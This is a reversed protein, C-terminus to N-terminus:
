YNWKHFIEYVDLGGGPFYDNPAFFFSRTSRDYTILTPTAPQNPDYVFFQIKKPDEKAGFIVVAHNITLTPFKVLHVLLPADSALDSVLQHATAEQHSRSFPFLMRWHGRQFYSQWAGGCEAKLLREHVRSFAHLDAFGPIVVKEDDSLHIRANCSVVQRILHRYTAENAKLLSPDFRANIFFQRASRAV